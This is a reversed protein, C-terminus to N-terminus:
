EATLYEVVAGVVEDASGSASWVTPWGGVKHAEDHDAFWQDGFHSVKIVDGEYLDDSSDNLATWLLDASEVDAPDHAELKVFHAPILGQLRQSVAYFDSM